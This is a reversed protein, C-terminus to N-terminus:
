SLIKFLPNDQLSEYSDQPHSDNFGKLFNLTSDQILFKESPYIQRKIVHLHNNRWVKIEYSSHIMDINNIAQLQCNELM